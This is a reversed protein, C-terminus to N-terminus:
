ENSGGNAMSEIGKSRWYGAYHWVSLHKFLHLSYHFHKRLM